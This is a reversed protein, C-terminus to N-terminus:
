CGREGAAVLAAIRDVGASVPAHCKAPDIAIGDVDENIVVPGSRVVGTTIESQAQAAIPAGLAGAITAIALIQNRM